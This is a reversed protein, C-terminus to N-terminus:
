NCGSQFIPTYFKVSSNEIILFSIRLNGCKWLIEQVTCTSFIEELSTELRYFAVKSSKERGCFGGLFFSIEEMWIIERRVIRGDM